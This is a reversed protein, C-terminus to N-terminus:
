KAVTFVKVVNNPKSEESKNLINKDVNMLFRLRANSKITIEQVPQLLLATNVECFLYSLTIEM